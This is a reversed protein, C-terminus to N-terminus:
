SPLTRARVAVPNRPRGRRRGRRAPRCGNKRCSKRKRESPKEKTGRKRGGMVVACPERYPEVLSTAVVSVRSTPFNFPDSWAAACLGRLVAIVTGIIKGPLVIRQGVWARRRGPLYGTYTKVGGKAMTRLKRLQEGARSLTVQEQAEQVMLKAEKNMQSTDPDFLNTM